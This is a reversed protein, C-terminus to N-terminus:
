RLERSSAGIGDGSVGVRLPGSREVTRGNWPGTEERRDPDFGRRDVVPDAALRGQGDNELSRTGCRDTSRCTTFQM